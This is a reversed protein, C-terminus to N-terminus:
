EIESWHRTREDRLRRVIEASDPQIGYKKRMGERFEDIRRYLDDDRDQKERIQEQTLVGHAMFRLAIKNVSTNHSKAMRQIKRHLSEPLGRILMNM